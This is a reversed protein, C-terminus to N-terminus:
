LSNFLNMKKKIFITLIKSLIICTIIIQIFICILEQLLDAWVPRDNFAGPYAEEIVVFGLASTLINQGNKLSTDDFLHFEVPEVYPDIDSMLWHAAEHIPTSAFILTCSLLFGILIIKFSIQQKNKEGM